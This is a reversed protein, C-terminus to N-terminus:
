VNGRVEAVAEKLDEDDGGQGIITHGINLERM